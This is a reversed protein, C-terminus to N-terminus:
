QPFNDVLSKSFLEVKNKHRKSCYVTPKKVFAHEFLCLQSVLIIAIMMAIKSTGPVDVYYFGRERIWTINHPDQEHVFLKEQIFKLYRLWNGIEMSNKECNNEYLLMIEYRSSIESTRRETMEM